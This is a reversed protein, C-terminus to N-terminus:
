LYALTPPKKNSTPKSSLTRAPSLAKTRKSESCFVGNAEHIPANVHQLANSGTQGKNIDEVVDQPFERRSWDEIELEQVEGQLQTLGQEAKQKAINLQERLQNIVQEKEAVRMSMEEQTTARYTEEQAQEQLQSQLGQILGGQQDELQQKVKVELATKESALASRLRRKANNAKSNLLRPRLLSNNANPM